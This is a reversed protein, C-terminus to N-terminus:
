DEAKKPDTATQPVEQISVLTAGEPHVDLWERL